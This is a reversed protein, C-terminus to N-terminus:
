VREDSPIAKSADTARQWGAEDLVRRVHTHEDCYQKTPFLLFLIRSAEADAQRSAKTEEARTEPRRERAQGRVRHHFLEHLLTGALLWTLFLRNSKLETPVADVHNQIYLEIDAMRTGDVPVYRGASRKGDPRREYERDLLLIKRIGALDTTRLCPLVAEIIEVVPTSLSTSRADEIRPFRPSSM